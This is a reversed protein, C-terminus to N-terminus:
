IKGRMNKSFTCVCSDRSKHGYRFQIQNIIEGGVTSFIATIKGEFIKCLTEKLNASHSVTEVFIIGLDFLFMEVAM